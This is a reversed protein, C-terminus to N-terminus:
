LSAAFVKRAAPQKRPHYQDIFQSPGTSWKMLPFPRTTQKSACQMTFGAFGCCVKVEACRRGIGQHLDARGPVYRQTPVVHNEAAAIVRLRQPAM